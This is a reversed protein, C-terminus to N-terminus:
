IGVEQDDVASNEKRTCSRRKIFDSALSELLCERVPFDDYDVATGEKRAM